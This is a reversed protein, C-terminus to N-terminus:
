FVGVLGVSGAFLLLGVAVSALGAVVRLAGARGVARGWGWAALGMAVVTAAAFGGLFAACAAATPATGALVVVVGGGGALGHVVGVAVSEEGAHSHILGVAGGAVSLHRHGAGVDPDEDTRSGRAEGEEGRRHLHGLLAM